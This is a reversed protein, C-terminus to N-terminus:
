SRSPPRLSREALITAAVVGACFVAGEFAGSVMQSVRGFGHEGLIAGAQDLRLRSGPFTQALLVLSGGMLRGGLLPIILGALAGFGAAIAASRRLGPMRSAIWIGLGVAAGLILGELAGTMGAPSRGFLLNFADLGLLKVVAGVILGGLAGGITATHWDRASLKRGIAVGFSVGAGGILGVAITLCMIVLLVSVAGLGPQLPRSAGLFGYFIGGFFGAIGGGVTGAAALLLTDRWSERIPLAPPRRAVGGEVAAIFRYGHKPVTEIFSPRAADDGLARRLSKICQTLAEDTVPVGAWVQDLFDDKTVLTGAQRVLLVLADLYRSSLEM